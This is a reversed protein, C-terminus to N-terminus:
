IFLYIFYNFLLHRQRPTGTFLLTWNTPLAQNLDRWYKIKKQEVKEEVGRELAQNCTL